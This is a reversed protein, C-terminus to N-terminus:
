VEKMVYGKGHKKTRLIKAIGFGMGTDKGKIIVKHCKPCSMVQITASGPKVKDAYLHKCKM